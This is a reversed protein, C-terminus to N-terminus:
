YAAFNINVKLLAKNVYPLEFTNEEELIRSVSEESMKTVHFIQSQHFHCANQYSSHPGPNRLKRGSDLSRSWIASLSFEHEAWQDPLGVGDCSLDVYTM